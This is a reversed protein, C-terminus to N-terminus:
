NNFYHQAQESLDKLREEVLLRKQEVQEKGSNKEVLIPEGYFILAPSFPLPIEMKDWSGNIVISRKLKVTTPIVWGGTRQALLIVGPKVQHLPGKPGDAAVAAIYGEELKKIMGRLAETGGRSSSGRVLEYRFRKLIRSLIEGDDSRSTIIAIKRQKHYDVLSFLDGHWFAFILKEERERNEWVQENVIKIRLTRSISYVILWGAWSALRIKLARRLRKM